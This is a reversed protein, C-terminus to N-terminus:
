LGAPPRAFAREGRADRWSRAVRLLWYTATGAALHKLTHGSVLGGWAFIAADLAEFVKSLAYWGAVAAVDAGPIWRRPYLLLALPILVLPVFQVLGYLRLDGTGGLESSRWSM